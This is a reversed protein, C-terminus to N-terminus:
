EKGKSVANKAEQEKAQQPSISIGAQAALQAKGAPPLDKFSISKSPEKKEVPPAETGEKLGADRVVEATAVKAEKIRQDSTPLIGAGQLDKMVELVAIKMAKIQQDTMQGEEQFDEMNQMFEATAGFEFSELYKEIAVKIAQPPIHGEAAYARLEQIMQQMAAKQGEKTFAVGSQVEIDVRYEKSIPVTREATEIGLDERKEIAGKGIIDFYQPEGKEMFMVTQPTIFHDDAYDLFREAIRRITNNLRKRSIVLSAFESEKLSEIAANAKVGKPIKGLTSTTVGQEELFQQLLGIYNFVFNPVPAIQGQVPPTQAYEVIQGGARNSINVQEGQRKLWTGAVMTNIYREIRSVVVDLSKNTPIFREIQPVQYIPGPEMRFDVFPYEPLDLYQDRLWVNGAVFTQRIIPDGMKRNKLLEGGDEQKRIRDRNEENLYEKVFAEKLVVTAAQQDRFERGYRALMYAEKIESSAHRNDPNLKTRQEEDFREDMQIDSILKPHGKIIFPLDSMETMSGVVFIDFADYVQTKIEEKIADPWIQMWSVGHKLALLVMHAIKQTLDQNDFEESIWHGVLKAVRDAEEKAEKYEEISKFAQRNVDEPYVVPTPDNSVMLNAIGRIQRSAKPIARLPSWINARQSLDIIKDQSRSLFRFHHGDDFFNNDYWRREFSRRENKATMMMDEIAQGMGMTPITSTDYGRQLKKAAM